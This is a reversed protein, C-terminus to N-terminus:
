ENSDTEDEHMDALKEAGKIIGDLVYKSWNVAKLNQGNSMVRLVEHSVHYTYSPKLVCNTAFLLFLAQWREGVESSLLERLLDKRKLKNEKIGYKACIKKKNYKLSSFAVGGSPLGLIWSVRSEDLPLKRGHVQLECSKPDFRKLLEYAVGLRCRKINLHLLGGMGMAMVMDKHCPQLDMLLKSFELLGGRAHYIQFPFFNAFQFLFVHLINRQEMDDIFWFFELLMGGNM